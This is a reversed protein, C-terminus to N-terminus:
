RSRGPRSTTIPQSERLSLTQVGRPGTIEVERDSISAITRKGSSEGVPDGVALTLVKKTDPDYFMARNGSPERLISLLQVKLPPPPEPAPPPPEPAPPPPPPAPPAVWLPTSFADADFAVQAIDPSPVAEGAQVRPIEPSRLPWMAWALAPLAAFCMVPVLWRSMSNLPDSKLPHSIPPAANPVRSPLSSGSM